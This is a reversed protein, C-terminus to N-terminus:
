LIIDILEVKWEDDISIPFYKMRAVDSKTVEKIDTKEPILRISRMNIELEHCLMEKLISVLRMMMAERKYFHGSM